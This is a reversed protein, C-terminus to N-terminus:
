PFVLRPEILESWSFTKNKEDESCQFEEIEFRGSKKVKSQTIMEFVVSHNEGVDVVKGEKYQSLEPTYNESMEIHKFAIIDGVRPGSEGVVHFASYDKVPHENRDFVAGNCNLLASFQSLNEVEKTDNSGNINTSTVAGAGNSLNLPEKRNSKVAMEKVSLVRPKFMPNPTSVVKNNTIKKDDFQKILAAECGEGASSKMGVPSMKVSNVPCSAVKNGKTTLQSSVSQEYLKKVDEETFEEAQKTEIDERLDMENNDDFTLHSNNTNLSNLDYSTPQIEAEFVPTEEPSLKNKNKNKRKRKRRPKLPMPGKVIAVAPKKLVASKKVVKEDQESDSDESSDSPSEESKEDTKAKATSKTKIGSDESESSSESSSDSSSSAAKRKVATSPINTMTPPKSNGDENDSESSSSSSSSQTKMQQRAGSSTVRRGKDSRDEDQRARTVSQRSQTRTVKVLDGPQLLEATEWPPLSFNDLFLTILDHEGLQQYEDRLREQVDSITSSNEERIFMWRLAGADKVFDTLDLKIRRGRSM